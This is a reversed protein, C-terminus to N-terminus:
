SIEAIYPKPDINVTEPMCIDKLSCSECKPEYVPLPLKQSWVLRHFDEAAQCTVKRLDEDIKVELRKKQSGYYLYGIEIQTNLIEELAMSQACLQVKDELGKKPKGRKYEVPLPQWGKGVKHFEVVDAQGYLRLKDSRLSLSREIKLGPRQESEGLDVKEHLNSGLITLHNDEWVGELHILACQRPCFLLHQLGSIPLYGEDDSM